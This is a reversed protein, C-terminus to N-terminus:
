QLGYEAKIAKLNETAQHQVASNIAICQQTFRIAEHVKIREGAEAMRYNVYGLHYYAGALMDSNNLYPVAARLHKDADAFKGQTSFLLGAMWNATGLMHRKKVDWEVDSIEEPKAKTELLELLKLSYAIVKAEEKRQEMYHTAAMLLLDENWEGKEFQVEASAVAEVIDVQRVVTTHSTRMQALYESTPNRQELAEILESKVKTDKTQISAFYLSYETYQEVQRAYEIKQKWVAIEEDDGYEPRKLQIVRRAVKSTQSSWLRILPLEKKAEAARLCNHAASVELPDISLIKAGTEFVKDYNKNELHQQQIHSLVWTAAEHNPFQTAFQELLFFKKAADKENDIQQLLQGEQTDIEILLKQGFM